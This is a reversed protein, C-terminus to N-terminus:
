IRAKVNSQAARRQELHLCAHITALLYHFMWSLWVAPDYSTKQKENAHRIGFNNVLNFLDNEDKKDLLSSVKPKLMELVDALERVAIRRDDVRSARSRFQNVAFEIRKAIGADSHPLPTVILSRIGEDLLRVVEGNPTLEYGSEYDALFENLASRLKEQGLARDFKDHHWGCGMYNHHYGSGPFPKSVHDHMFEMVDFLDDESYDACHSRVPWLNRKKLAITMRLEISRGLTGPLFEDEADPCWKGFCEEFYGANDLEEYTALFASRLVNLDLEINGSSHGTRVSYYPRPM